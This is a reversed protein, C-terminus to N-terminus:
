IFFSHNKAVSNNKDRMKNFCLDSDNIDKIICKLGELWLAFDEYSFFIFEYKKYNKMILVFSFNNTKCSKEIETDNLYTIYKYRNEKIFNELNKKNKKNYKLYEEKIESILKIRRNVEINKIDQIYLLINNFSNCPLLKFYEHNKNLHLTSKIFNYPYKNLLEEGFNNLPDYKVVKNNLERFYCFTAKKLLNLKQFNCNLLNLVKNNEHKNIDYNKYNIKTLTKNAKDIFSNNEKNEKNEFNSTIVSKNLLLTKINNKKNSSIKTSIITIPQSKTNKLIFSNNNSSSSSYFNNQKPLQKTNSTITSNEISKFSNSLLLNSNNKSNANAAVPNVNISNKLNQKDIKINTIYQKLTDFSNYIKNNIYNFIEELLNNFIFDNIYGNNKISIINSKINNIKEKIIKDYNNIENNLSLDKLKNNINMITDINEKQKTQIQNEINKINIELNNKEKVLNNLNINMEIFNIDNLKFLKNKFNFNNQKLKIKLKELDNKKEKKILKYQKKLFNMKIHILNEYYVKKVCCYIYNNMSEKDNTDINFGFENIKMLIVSSLHVIFNNAINFLIKAETSKLYEKFENSIVNQLINQNIKINSKYCHAISISNNHNKTVSVSRKTYNNKKYINEFNDKNLIEFLNKTIFISTERINLSLLEYNYLNTIENYPESYLCIIFNFINSENNKRVTNNLNYQIISELTEKCSVINLLEANISNKEEKLMKLNEIIQNIKEQISNEDKENININNSNNLLINYESIQNNISTLTSKFKKLQEQYNIMKATFKANIKIMQNKYTDILNKKNQIISTTSEKQILPENNNQLKQEELKTIEELLSFILKKPIEINIIRNNKLKFKESSM